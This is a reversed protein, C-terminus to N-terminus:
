VRTAPIMEPKSHKLRKRLKRSWFFAAGAGLVPLPGPVIYSYHGVVTATTNGNIDSVLINGTRDTTAIPFPTLNFTSLGSFATQGAIFTQTQNGCCTLRLGGDPSVANPQAASLIGYRYNSQNAAFSGPTLSAFRLSGLLTGEFVVAFGQGTSNALAPALTGSFTVAAPNSADIIVQFQSPSAEARGSALLIALSYVGFSANRTFRQLDLSKSLTM